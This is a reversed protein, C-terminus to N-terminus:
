ADKVLLKCSLVGSDCLLERPLGTSSGQNFSPKFRQGQSGELASVAESDLSMLANPDKSITKKKHLSLVKKDRYPM